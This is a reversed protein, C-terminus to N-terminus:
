FDFFKKCINVIVNKSRFKEQERRRSPANTGATKRGVVTTPLGFDILNRNYDIYFDIRPIDSHMAELLESRVDGRSPAM